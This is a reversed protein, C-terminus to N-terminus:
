IIDEVSYVFVGQAKGKLPIEGIETVKLRDGVRDYVAQSILVQGRKANSELRAATNVTDGICTYDMRYQTGINGVVADGCNIGIGLAVTKGYQDYIEQEIAATAKAMDLGACVARYVYDDLDFPANFMAMTADGIFKDLTGGNKFVAETTLSLYRNLIEVVQQPSLQESMPTFGRIDAFLVAIDRNTGGLEINFTDNKIIEDVVQPAVYKKFTNTVQRRKKFEAFYNTFIHLVLLVVVTIPIYIVSLVWGSQYALLCIGLYAAVSVISLIVARKQKTFLLACLMAVIAAAIAQWLRAVYLKPTGDMLAQVINAHIECGNMKVDRRMSTYYDDLMGTEYPGIIVICDAFMEPPIKGNLVDVFSNGGSYDGPLGSFPLYFRGKKDLKPEASPPDGTNRLYMQLLEYAFSKSTNGELDISHMSSRVISDRDAVTNIHGQVTVDALAQYPSRLEPTGQDDIYFLGDVEDVQKNYRILSATVVNDYESAAEVLSQDAEPNSEDFYMIDMGIAAPHAKPNSNLQKIINASISRDWTNFPGLESLTKDDIGIVAIRDNPVRPHQYLMDAFMSDVAFLWDYFCFIFAIFAAAIVTVLRKLPLKRTM